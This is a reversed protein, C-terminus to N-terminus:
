RGFVQAALSTRDVVIQASGLAGLPPLSPPGEGVTWALGSPTSSDTRLELVVEYLPGGQVAAAAQAADGLIDGLRARSLPVAGIERVDARLSGFTQPNVSGIVVTAEQGVAVATLDAAGVLALGVPEEDAAALLFMPNGQLNVRGEATDVTVVVGDIPAVVEAQGVEPISVVAMVDGARVRDGEVLDMQVVLGGALEGVPYLGSEPSFVVPASVTVTRQAVVGWIVLALVLAALGLVGFWIQGTTRKFVADLQELPNGAEALAREEFTAVRAPETPTEEAAILEDIADLGPRGARGARGIRAEGGDPNPEDPIESRPSDNSM